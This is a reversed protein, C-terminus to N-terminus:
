SRLLSSAAFYSIGTTFAMAISTLVQFRDFSSDEPKPDESDSNLFLSELGIEILRGRLETPLPEPDMRNAAQYKRRFEALDSAGAMEQVRDECVECTALHSSVEERRDEPLDSSLYRTLIEDSCCQM